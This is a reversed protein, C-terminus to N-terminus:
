ASGDGVAESDGRLFGNANSYNKACRTSHGHLWLPDGRRLSGLQHAGGGAWWSGRGERLAGPGVAGPRGEGSNM